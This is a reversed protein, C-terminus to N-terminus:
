KDSFNPPSTLSTRFRSMEVRQRARGWLLPVLFRSVLLATVVGAGTSATVEVLSGGTQLLGLGPLFWLVFRTWDGHRLYFSARADFFALVIGLVMFGLIVGLTGFNIYFELVQGVGVSTGPAFVIGTYKSVLGPSGAYVPKDPWLARPILAVLAQGITDGYAFAQYGFALYFVAAGVLFNQNLRGDVIQLHTTNRIDFWELTRLTEYVRALREPLPRGGWVAARIDSRDRMYSVFLSLSLYALVVTAVVLWRRPRVFTAVFMLVTIFAMAGYGIFGQFVMTLFPLAMTLMMWRLFTRRDHVQWAHWLALCLGVLLLQNAMSVLAGLTPVSGLRPFLILYSIIGIGMYVRPLRYDDARLVLRPNEGRSHPAQSRLIKRLWPFLVLIGFSLAIIGYMSERFGAMVRSIPYYTHWPLLYLAAALWHILWLHALYAFVLGVSAGERRWYFWVVLGAALLWAGLYLVLTGNASM